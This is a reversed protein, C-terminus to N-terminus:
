APLDSPSRQYNILSDMRLGFNQLSRGQCDLFGNGARFTRFLLVLFLNHFGQHNSPDRQRDIFGNEVQLTPRVAGLILLHM